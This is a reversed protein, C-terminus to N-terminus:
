EALLGMCRACMYHGNRMGMEDSYGPRDCEICKIIIPMPRM